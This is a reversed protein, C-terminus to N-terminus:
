NITLFIGFKKQLSWNFNWFISMIGHLWKKVIFTLEYNIICMQTIEVFEIMGGTSGHVIVMSNRYSIGNDAVRQAIYILSVGPYKLSLSHKLDEKMVDVFITSMHTVELHSKDFIQLYMQHGVM